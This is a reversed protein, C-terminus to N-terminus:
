ASLRTSKSELALQVMGAIDFLTIEDLLEKGTLLAHRREIPDLLSAPMFSRMAAMGGATFRGERDTEITAYSGIAPLRVGFEKDLRFSLELWEISEAALDPFLRKEPAAEALDVSLTDAVALQVRPLIDALAHM